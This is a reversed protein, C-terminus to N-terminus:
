RHKKYYNFIRNPINTTYAGTDPCLLRLEFNVIMPIKPRNNELTRLTPTKESRQWFNVAKQKEILTLPM